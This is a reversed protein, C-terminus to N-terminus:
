HTRYSGQQSYCGSSLCWMFMAASCKGRLRWLLLLPLNIFVLFSFYFQSPIGPSLHFTTLDRDPISLLLPSMPKCPPQWAKGRRNGAGGQAVAATGSVRLPLFIVSILESGSCLLRGFRPCHTLLRPYCQSSKWAGLCKRREAHAGWRGWAGVESDRQM